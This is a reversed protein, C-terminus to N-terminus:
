GCRKRCSQLGNLDARKRVAEFPNNQFFMRDGVADLIEEKSKFHHYVAGKTLGGLEDVIDQITTNDYGKELFLRQAADLIREVTVEPYKNRAMDAGQPDHRRKCERPIYRSYWVGAGGTLAPPCLFLFFAAGAPCITRGTRACGQANQPHIGAPTVAPRGGRSEARRRPRHEGVQRGPGERGMHGYAALPRYIPKRLDLDRIIAAPRLDFVQEVAREILEDAVAGTGFTDVMISVPEAVGIAYALQIECGPPWAPPWSTKPWGAPPM